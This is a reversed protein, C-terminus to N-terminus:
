FYAGVEKFYHALLFFIYFVFFNGIMYFEYNYTTVVQQRNVNNSNNNVFAPAATKNQHTTLTKTVDNGNLLRNLLFAQGLLVVLYACKVFIYLLSLYNTEFLASHSSNRKGTTTVYNTSEPKNFVRNLINKNIIYFFKSSNRQQPKSLVNVNSSINTPVDAQHMYLYQKTEYGSALINSLHKKSISRVKNNLINLTSNLRYEDSGGGGGSYPSWNNEDGKEDSSGNLFDILMKSNINQNDILFYKKNPPLQPLELKPPPPPSPAAALPSPLLLPDVM